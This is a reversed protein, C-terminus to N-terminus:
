HPLFNVGLIWKPLFHRIDIAKACQLCNARLDSEIQDLTSWQKADTPETGVGSADDKNM